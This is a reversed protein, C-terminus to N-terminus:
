KDLRSGRMTASKGHEIPERRLLLERCCGSRIWVRFLLCRTVIGNGYRRLGLGISKNEVSGFVVIWFAVLLLLLSGVIKTLSLRLHPQSPQLRKVETIGVIRAKCTIYDDDSNIVGKIEFFDGKNLLLSRISLINGKEEKEVTLDFPNVNIVESSLIKGKESFISDISKKSFDGEEVPLRGVNLLTIEFLRASTILEGDYFIQFKRSIEPDISFIETNTKVIYALSKRLRWWHVFYAISIATIIAFISVSVAIIPAIKTINEITSSQM